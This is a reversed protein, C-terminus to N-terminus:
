RGSFAKSIAELRNSPNASAPAFNDDLTNMDCPLPKTMRGTENDFIQQRCEREPGTYSIIKGANLKSGLMDNATPSHNWYTPVMTLVFGIAALALFGAIVIRTRRWDQANAGATLRPKAVMVPTPAPVAIPFENASSDESM